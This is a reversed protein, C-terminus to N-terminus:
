NCKCSCGSNCCSGSMDDVLMKLEDDTLSSIFRDIALELDEINIGISKARDKLSNNLM